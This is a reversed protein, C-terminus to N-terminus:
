IHILSLTLPVETGTLKAIATGKSGRDFVATDAKVPTEGQIVCSLAKDGDTAHSDAPAILSVGTALVTAALAAALSHPVRLDSLRM